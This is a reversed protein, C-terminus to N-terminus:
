QSERLLRKRLKMDMHANRLRSKILSSGGVRGVSRGVSQSFANSPRPHLLNGGRVNPLCDVVLTQTDGNRTQKDFYQPVAPFLERWTVAAQEGSAARQM